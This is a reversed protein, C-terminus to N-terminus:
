EGKFDDPRVVNVTGPSLKSEWDPRKAEVTMSGLDFDMSADAEQAEAGEAYVMGSICCGLSIGIAFTLSKGVGDFKM